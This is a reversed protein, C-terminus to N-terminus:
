LQSTVSDIDSDSHPYLEGYIRFTGICLNHYVQPVREASTWREAMATLVMSTTQTDELVISWDVANRIDDHTWICYLHVVAALFLWHIAMWTCDVADSQYLKWYLRLVAQASDFCTQIDRPTPDPNAVSPRHLFICLNHYAHHFWDIMETPCTAIPVASLWDDIRHQTRDIFIASFPQTRQYLVDAVESQLQRLRFCHNTIETNGVVCNKSYPFQTSIEVDPLGTPRGLTNGVARDISYLSWFLRRRLDAEASPVDAPVDRHLGLAISSRLAHGVLHWVVPQQPNSLSFHLVLLIVQLSQLSPPYLILQLGRLVKQYYIEALKSATTNREAKGLVNLSIAFVMHICGTALHKIEANQELFLKMYAHFELENLLPHQSQCDSFVGFLEEMTRQTLPIGDDPPSLEPLQGLKIAMPRRVHPMRASPNLIGQSKALNICSRIFVLGSSDGLYSTNVRGSPIDSAPSNASFPTTPLASPTMITAKLSRLEQLRDELQKVYLRPFTQGTEPDTFHCVESAAVCSACGEPIKDCKQRRHKCRDCVPVSAPRAM